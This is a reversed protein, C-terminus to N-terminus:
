ELRIGIDQLVDAVTAADQQIKGALFASLGASMRGVSSSLHPVVECSPQAKCYELLEPNEIQLVIFSEAGVDRKISWGPL